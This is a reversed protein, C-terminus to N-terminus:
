HKKIGGSVAGTESTILMVGLAVLAGIVAPSSLAVLVKELATGRKGKSALAAMAELTDKLELNKEDDLEAGKDVSIDIAQRIASANDPNNNIEENFVSRLALYQTLTMPRKYIELDSITQKTVGIEKGLRETTWGVIQRISRLNKQLLKTKKERLEIDGV